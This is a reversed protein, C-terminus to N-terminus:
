GGRGWSAGRVRAMPLALEPALRAPQAPQGELCVCVCVCVFVGRQAGTPVPDIRGAARVPRGAWTGAMHLPFYACRFSLM